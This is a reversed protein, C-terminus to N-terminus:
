KLLYVKIKEIKKPTLSVEGKHDNMTKWVYSLKERESKLCRPEEQIGMIECLKEVFYTEDELSGSSANWRNIIVRVKNEM